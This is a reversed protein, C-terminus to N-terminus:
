FMRVRKAPEFYAPLGKIIDRRTKIEEIAHSKLVDVWKNAEELSDPLFYGAHNAIIPQKQVTRLEHVIQRIKRCDNDTGRMGLRKALQSGSIAYREGTRSKLILLLEDQQHENFVRTNVRM